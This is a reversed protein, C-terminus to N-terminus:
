HFYFIMSESIIRNCLSFESSTLKDAALNALAKLLVIIKSIPFWSSKNYSSKSLSISIIENFSDYISLNIEFLKLM